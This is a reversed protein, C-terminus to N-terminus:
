AFHRLSSAHRSYLHTAESFPWRSSDILLSCSQDLDLEQTVLTVNMGQSGNYCQVM